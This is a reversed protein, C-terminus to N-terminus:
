RMEFERIEYLEGGSTDTWQVKRREMQSDVTNSKGSSEEHEDGDGIGGTTTPQIDNSPKKLSSKLDIERNGNDDDVLDASDIEDKNEDFVPPEPSVEKQQSSGVKLPSPSELGAATHGLCVFSACGRVAGNKASALQLDPDTGQDVLQYQNWPTVRMPKGESRQGLFLLTLGKSYGSASSSFFGGGEVTLLM